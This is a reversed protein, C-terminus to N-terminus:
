QNKGYEAIIKFFIVPDNEYYYYQGNHRVWMVRNKRMDLHIMPMQKGGLQTDLYLGIGGFDMRCAQQWILWVAKWSAFLDTADSLRSNGNTSHRSSGDPRVHAGYVPSPRMSCWSPVLDRLLFLENFLDPNMHETADGPWESPKFRKTRKWEIKQM